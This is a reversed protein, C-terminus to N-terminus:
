TMRRDRPRQSEVVYIRGLGDVSVYHLERLALALDSFVGDTGFSADLTGDPRLRRIRNVETVVVTSGDPGVAAASIGGGQRPLNIRLSGGDGFSVDVDSPAGPGTPPASAAVLASAILIAM